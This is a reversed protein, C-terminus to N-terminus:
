TGLVRAFNDENPILKRKSVWGRLNGSFVSSLNLIPYQDNDDDLMTEIIRRADLYMMPRAVHEAPSMHGSKILRDYLEIDANIDRRGDHTLYSVRACRGISVKILTDIDYLGFEDPQILPLHWQGYDLTVPVSDNMAQKMLQAPKRIEPQAQDNDRLAFFNEWETASVIITQWMFPELVRNALQKHVGGTIVGDLGALRSASKVANGCAILWADRALEQNTEDLEEEAQMGKQNKGFSEPIFPDAIVAAIRNMVPIARSSASNRSFMRHTNFEALVLRPITVELTTLRVHHPSISDCLVRASYSM